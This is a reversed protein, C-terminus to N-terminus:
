LSALTILLVLISPHYWTTDQRADRAAALVLRTDSALSTHVSHHARNLPLDSHTQHRHCVHSRPVAGSLVSVQPNDEQSTGHHPGM